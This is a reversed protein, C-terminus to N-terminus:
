RVREHRRNASWHRKFYLATQLENDGGKNENRSLATSQVDSRARKDAVPIGPVVHRSIGRKALHGSIWVDDEFFASKPADKYNKLAETDFFNPKVLYGKWGALYDVHVPVHIDNTQLRNAVLWPSLSKYIGGRAGLAGHPMAYEWRLFSAATGRSFAHDDDVVIVIADPGLVSLTPIIKTAPGYDPCRNVRVRRSYPANTLYSPVSYARRFRTSYYPLNLWIAVPAPEQAILSDLTRRLSKERGPVTSLSFHYPKHREPMSPLVPLEQRMFWGVLAGLVYFLIVLWWIM